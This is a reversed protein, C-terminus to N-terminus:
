PSRECFSAGRQGPRCHGGIRVGDFIYSANLKGPRDITILAAGDEAPGLVIHGERDRPATM